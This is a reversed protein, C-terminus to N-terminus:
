FTRYDPDVRPEVMWGPKRRMIFCYLTEDQFLRARDLILHRCEPMVQVEYDRKLLLTLVTSDSETHM